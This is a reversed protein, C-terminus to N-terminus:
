RARRARTTRGDHSTSQLTKEWEAVTDGVVDEVKWLVDYEPLIRTQYEEFAMLSTGLIHQLDLAPRDPRSFVRERVHADKQWREYQKM